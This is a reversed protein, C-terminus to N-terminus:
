NSDGPERTDWAIRNGPNSLGAVKFVLEPGGHFLRRPDIGVRRRTLQPVPWSKYTTNWERVFELIRWHEDTLEGVRLESALVQALKRDWSSPDRLYGSEDVGVATVVERKPLVVAAAVIECLNHVRIGLNYHRNLEFIQEVCNHCSTAVIKAGTARIQEAKIRGVELRRDNFESMTLAGGGGGCCINNVGSPNMERFDEVAHKLLHRAEDILGGSRAQNCPDHYTISEKNRSPDLKIRGQRIYDPVIESISKVEVGIRRGLWNDAEFRLARYGHGCETMAIADVKLREAEEVLRRCIERAAADDGSFLAYNTADWVNSSLTWNERAAHLVKFTTLLLLPYFRVERPNLTLLYKAGVKDIPIKVGPDGIDKQLETEIWKVTDIFDERSIGVTNGTNLHRDVVDKLGKPIQNCDTLMGRATRTLLATDVGMPCMFTCRRCMTCSGWVADYLEALLGENPKKADVWFPFLRGMWDYRRKYLKRLLEAKYAPTMKPDDTALFFQCSDSCVGCHVCAQMSVAFQRSMRRSMSNMAVNVKEGKIMTDTM